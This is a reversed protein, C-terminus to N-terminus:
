REKESTIPVPSAVPSMADNNRSPTTADAPLAFPDAPLENLDIGNASSPSAPPTPPALPTAAAAASPCLVKELKNLAGEVRQQELFDRLNNVLDPTRSRALAIYNACSPWSDIQNLVVFDYDRTANATAEQNTFAVCM